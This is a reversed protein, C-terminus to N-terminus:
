LFMGDSTVGTFGEALLGEWTETLAYLWPPFKTERFTEVYSYADQQAATTFRPHSPDPLYKRFPSPPSSSPSM